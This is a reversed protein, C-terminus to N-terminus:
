AQGLALESSIRVIYGITQQVYPYICLLEIRQCPEGSAKRDLFNLQVLRM